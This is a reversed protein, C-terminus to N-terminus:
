LSDDRGLYNLLARQVDSVIDYEQLKESCEEVLTDILDRPTVHWICDHIESFKELLTRLEDSVGTVLPVSLATLSRKLDSAGKFLLPTSTDNLTRLSKSQDPILPISHLEAKLDDLESDLLRNFVSKLWSDTFHGIKAKSFVPDGGDAKGTIYEALTTM